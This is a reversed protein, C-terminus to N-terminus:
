WDHEEGGEPGWDLLPCVMFPIVYHAQENNPDNYYMTVKNKGIDVVMFHIVRKNPNLHDPVDPDYFGLVGVDLEDWGTWSNCFFKEIGEPVTRDDM